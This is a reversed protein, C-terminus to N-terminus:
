KTCTYKTIMFSRPWTLGANVITLNLKSDSHFQKFLFLIIMEREEWSLLRGFPLCTEFPYNETAPKSINVISLLQM